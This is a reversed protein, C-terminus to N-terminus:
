GTKCRRLAFRDAALRSMQPAMIDRGIARMSAMGNIYKIACKIVEALRVFVPM